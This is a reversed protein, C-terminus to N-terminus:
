AKLGVSKAYAIIRPRTNDSVFLGSVVKNFLDETFDAKVSYYKRAVMNAIHQAMPTEAQRYVVSSRVTIFEHVGPELVCAPDYIRNQKISSVMVALCMGDKCPDNLLIFLHPSNHFPILLSARRYPVYSM